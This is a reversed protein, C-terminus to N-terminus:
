SLGEIDKLVVVIRFEDELESIARGVEVQKERSMAHEAPGCDDSKVSDSLRGEGDANERSLSVPKVGGPGPRKRRESLVTNVAIRYLWTYVASEGKFSAM